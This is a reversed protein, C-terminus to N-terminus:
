TNFSDDHRTSASILNLRLRVRQMLELVSTMGASQLQSLIQGGEFESPIMKANPKICRIFSTGTGRLKELLESLQTRFKSAVSVYTLKGKQQQQQTTLALLGKLFPNKSEQVLGELSAHLADNNKEIFQTQVFSYYLEICQGTWVYTHITSIVTV